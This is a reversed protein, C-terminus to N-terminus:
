RVKPSIDQSQQSMHNYLYQWTLIFNKARETSHVFNLVNGQFDASRSYNWSGDEVWEYDIVTFKNHMIQGHSPSTGIVVEIGAQRLREIQPRQYTGHSQSRDLVLRVTVGRKEKLEILKDVISPETFGYAAIFVSKKAQDLFQLYSPLGQESPTFITQMQGPALKELHVPSVRSTAGVYVGSGFAM